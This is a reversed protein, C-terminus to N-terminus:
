PQYELSPTQGKPWLLRYRIRPNPGGPVLDIRWFPDEKLRKALEDPTFAPEVPTLRLDDHDMRPLPEVLHVTEKWGAPAQLQYDLTVALERKRWGDESGTGPIREVRLRDDAGLPLRLEAGPVTFPLTTTGGEVGDLILRCPGPPLPGTLPNTAM